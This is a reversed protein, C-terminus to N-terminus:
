RTVSFGPVRFGSYRGVLMLIDKKAIQDRQAESVSKGQRKMM